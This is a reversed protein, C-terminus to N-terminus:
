DFIVFWGRSRRLYEAARIAFGTAQRHLPAFIIVKTPAALIDNRREMWCATSTKSEDFSLDKPFYIKKKTAVSFILLKEVDAIENNWKKM